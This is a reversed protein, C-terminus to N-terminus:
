FADCHSANQAQLDAIKLHKQSCANQGEPTFTINYHGEGDDSNGVGAMSTGMIHLARYRDTRTGKVGM